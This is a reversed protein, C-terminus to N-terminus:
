LGQSFYKVIKLNSEKIPAENFSVRYTEEQCDRYKEQKPVRKLHKKCETEQLWKCDNGEDGTTFIVDNIVNALLMQEVGFDIIQCKSQSMGPKNSDVDSQNM